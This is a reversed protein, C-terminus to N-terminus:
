PVDNVIDSSTMSNMVFVCNAETGSDQLNPFTDRDGMRWWHKPETSLTSLDFVSGSNYLDSINSSQDSDFLALEDVKAERMHAGSAFRGVRWNQGVVSGNYGYNNHTNNTTQLSGDIYIKFRSYYDSMDGSDSGTTGGNYAIAIHQWTDATLSGNPTMLQLYNNHTGYRFRLRKQGAANTQRLELYGNNTVDNNGFYIITQGLNESSAKFWFAITWADGSGSGNASRGLVHEVQSANAGLWKQNTFRISKTNSFPPTSVTLTITQSDEGNYNIAKVPINYTGVALSSGGILKRINGEVTTIGSVNSLDWEYGVGFNATLEYNITAGEVSNITLNSTIEPLSQTPTGSSTFIANLQDCVETATGIYTDNNKDVFVTHDVNSVLDIQKALDTITVTSDLVSAELSNVFQAGNADEIFISNAANDKYIKISM